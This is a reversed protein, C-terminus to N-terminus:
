FAGSVLAGVPLSLTPASTLLIALGWHRRAHAPTTLKRLGQNVLFWLAGFGVTLPVVVLTWGLPVGGALGLNSVYVSLLFFPFLGIVGLCLNAVVTM